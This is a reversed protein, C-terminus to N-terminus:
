CHYRAIQDHEDRKGAAQERRKRSGVREGDDIRQRRSGVGDTAAIDRLVEAAHHRALARLVVPLANRVSAPLAVHRLQEHVRGIRQDDIDDNGVIPLEVLL